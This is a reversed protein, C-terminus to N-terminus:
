EQEFNEEMYNLISDILFDKPQSDDLDHLGISEAYSIIDKKSKLKKVEEPSKIVIATKEADTSSQKDDSQSVYAAIGTAVLRKETEDDLNLTTGPGLLKPGYKGRIIEIM